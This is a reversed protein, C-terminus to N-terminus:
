VLNNNKGTLSWFSLYASLIRWGKQRGFFHCLRGIDNDILTMKVTNDIDSLLTVVKHQITEQLAQLESDYSQETFEQQFCTLFVFLHILTQGGSLFITRYKYLKLKIGNLSVM